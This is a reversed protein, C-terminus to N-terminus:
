NNPVVNAQIAIKQEDGEDEMKLAKIDEVKVVQEYGSEIEVQEEKKALRKFELKSKGMDEMDVMPENKVRVGGEKEELQALTKKWKRFGESGELGRRIGPTGECLDITARLWSVDSTTSFLM